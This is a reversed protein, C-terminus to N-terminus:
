TRLELQRAEQLGAHLASRQVMKRCRIAVLERVGSVSRDPAKLSQRPEFVCAPFWRMAPKLLPLLVGRMEVAVSRM